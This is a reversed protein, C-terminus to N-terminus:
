VDQDRRPLVPPAFLQLIQRDRTKQNRNRTKAFVADGLRQKDPLPGPPIKWRHADFFEFRDNGAERGGLKCPKGLPELFEHGVLPVALNLLVHKGAAEIPREFAGIVM